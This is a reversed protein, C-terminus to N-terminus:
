KKYNFDRTLKLGFVLQNLNYSRQNLALYQVGGFGSSNSLNLQFTHGPTRYNFGVGMSNYYNEREDSFNLNHFYEATIGTNKYFDWVFGGGISFLMNQDDSTVLNRHLYTPLLAIEINDTIKSSVSLQNFYFLRHSFEEFYNLDNIFSSKKMSTISSVFTNSLLFPKDFLETKLLNYKFGLEYFGKYPLSEGSNRSISIMLKDNLAYSIDLQIDSINDLGFFTHFGGEEGFANGLRSALQFRWTGKEMIEATHGNIYNSHKALQAFIGGFAISFMLFTLSLYINKM